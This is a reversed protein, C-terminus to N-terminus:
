DGDPAEGIIVPKVEIRTVTGHFIDPSILVAWGHAVCDPLCAPTCTESVDVRARYYLIDSDCDIVPDPHDAFVRLRIGIHAAAAQDVRGPAPANVRAIVAASRALSELGAARRTQDDM